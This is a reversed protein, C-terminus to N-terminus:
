MGLPVRTIQITCLCTIKPERLENTTCKRRKGKSRKTLKESAETLRRDNKSSVLRESRKKRPNKSRKKFLFLNTHSNKKAFFAICRLSLFSTCPFLNVSFDIFILHLFITFIKTSFPKM